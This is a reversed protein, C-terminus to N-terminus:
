MGRKRRAETIDLGLQYGDYFGGIFPTYEVKPAPFHKEEILMMYYKLIGGRYGRFEPPPTAYEVTGNIIKELDLWMAEFKEGRKIVELLEGYVRIEWESDKKNIMHELFEIAEETNM